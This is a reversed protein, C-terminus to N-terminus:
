ICVKESIVVLTLIVYAYCLKHTFGSIKKFKMFIYNNPQIDMTFEYNINPDISKYQTYQTNFDSKKSKHLL